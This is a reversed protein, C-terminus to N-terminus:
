EDAADSTYLLCSYCCESIKNQTLFTLYIRYYNIQNRNPSHEADNIGIIIKYNMCVLIQRHIARNSKYKLYCYM